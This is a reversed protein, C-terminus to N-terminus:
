GEMRVPKLQTSGLRVYDLRDNALVSFIWSTVFSFSTFRLVTCFLCRLSCGAYRTWIQRIATHM